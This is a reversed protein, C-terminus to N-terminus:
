GGAGPVKDLRAFANDYANCRAACLAVLFITHGMISEAIRVGRAYRIRATVDEGTRLIVKAFQLLCPVVNLRANAYLTGLRDVVEGPKLVAQGQERVLEGDGIIKHGRRQIEVRKLLRRQRM